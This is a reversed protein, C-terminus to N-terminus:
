LEMAEEYAVWSHAGTENGYCPDEWYCHLCDGCRDCFDVGCRPTEDEVRLLKDGDSSYVFKKM